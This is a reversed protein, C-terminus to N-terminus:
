LRDNDKSTSHRYDSVSDEQNSIIKRRENNLRIVQIFHRIALTISTGIGFALIFIPILNHADVSLFDFTNDLRTLIDCLLIALATFKLFKCHYKGESFCYVVTILEFLPVYGDNLIDYCFFQAVFYSLVLYIGITIISLRVLLKGM